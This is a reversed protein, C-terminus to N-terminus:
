SEFPFTMAAPGHPVQESGAVLEVTGNGLLAKLREEASRLCHMGHGTAFCKAGLLWASSVADEICRGVVGGMHSLRVIDTISPSADKSEGFYGKRAHSSKAQGTYGCKTASM